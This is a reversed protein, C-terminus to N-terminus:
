KQLTHLSQNGQQKDRESSLSTKQKIWSEFAISMSEKNKVEDLIRRVALAVPPDFLSDRRFGDIDKEPATSYTIREGDIHPPLPRQIIIGHVTPDANLRSILSLLEDETFQKGFRHVSIKANIQTTKLEKQRVYVASSADDGILIVALHPVVCEAKLQTVEQTLSELLSKAIAKGDIKM